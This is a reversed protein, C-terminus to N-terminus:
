WGIPLCASICSECAEQSTRCPITCNCPRPGWWVSTVIGTSIIKATSAKRLIPQAQIPLKM